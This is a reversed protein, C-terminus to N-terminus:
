EQELCSHRIASPGAQGALPGQETGSAAAAVPDAPIAEGRRDQPKRAQLQLGLGVQSEM